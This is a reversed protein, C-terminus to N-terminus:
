YTGWPTFMGQEVRQESPRNKMDPDWIHSWNNGCVALGRVRTAGCGKLFKATARFTGGSICADDVMLISKGKILKPDPTDSVKYKNDHLNLAVLLATKSWEALTLNCSDYRKVRIFCYPLNLQRAFIPALIAGGSYIGVVVDAHLDGSEKKFHTLRM